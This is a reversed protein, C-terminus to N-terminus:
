SFGSQKKTHVAIVICQASRHLSLHFGQKALLKADYQNRRRFIVHAKM